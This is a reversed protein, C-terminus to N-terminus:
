PAPEGWCPPELQLNQDDLESRNFREYRDAVDNWSLLELAIRDGVRFRAARTLSGDAMSRLYVMAQAEAPVGPGSLESLHLACVHDKYPVSGPRPIPSVAEVTGSVRVPPAGDDPAYFTRPRAEGLTLDVLKWDGVALERAAFQWVVIKKGALRDHGRALERALMARSAYAGADNRLLADLPRSLELALQEALGASEGWNMAALSYINSFSDGLLLVEASRAPRWFEGGPALVVRLQVAEPPFLTQEAPLKLMTAIDGHNAVQASEVRFSATGAPLALEDRLFAALAAAVAQMAEPRWHTDTKLFAEGEEKAWRALLDAPDFVKVGAARLEDIFARYSPNHLPAAAPDGNASLRDPHIAAKVPVPLVVLAIGRAALQRQFDVIALRPDPQPPAEHESGGLSRGRLRAPDLFPPGTLYDVGPRYFLWGARGIYAQENGLGLRVALAQVRPIAAQAVFSDDALKTEYAQMRGLLVANAAFLRDSWSGGAPARLTQWAAPGAAGIALAGPEGARRDLVCQVVPIAVVTLLFFLVLAIAIRRGIATEGIERKASEERSLTPPKLEPM